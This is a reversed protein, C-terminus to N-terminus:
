RLMELQASFALQAQRVQRVDNEIERFRELWEDELNELAEADTAENGNDELAGLAEDFRAWQTQQEESRSEFRQDIDDALTAVSDELAEIQERNQAEVHAIEEELSARGSTGAQELADLSTHIAALQSDRLAARERMQDLRDILPDVSDNAANRENETLLEYLENRTDTLDVALQEQEQFLTSMQAQVFTFTDQVDSDGTDLRAHMNSVEGSVRQIEGQLREREWYLGVTAAALLIIVLLMCLWLPWLTPGKRYKVHQSAISQDADPVIRSSPAKDSM